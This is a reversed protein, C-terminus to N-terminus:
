AYCSAGGEQSAAPAAATKSGCVIAQIQPTQAASVQALVFVFQEREVFIFHAVRPIDRSFLADDM